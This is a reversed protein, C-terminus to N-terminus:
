AVQDEDSAKIIENQSMGDETIFYLIIVMFDWMM